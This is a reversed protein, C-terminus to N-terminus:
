KRASRRAVRDWIRKQAALMIVGVVILISV